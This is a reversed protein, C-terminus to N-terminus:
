QMMLLCGVNRLERTSISSDALRVFNALFARCLSLLRTPPHQHCPRCYDTLKILWCSVSVNTQSLLADQARGRSYLFVSVRLADCCLWLLSGLWRMEIAMVVAIVSSVIPRQHTDKTISGNNSSSSSNSSSIRYRQCPPSKITAVILLIYLLQYFSSVDRSAYRADDCVLLLSGSEIKGNNKLKRGKRKRGQEPIEVPALHTTVCRSLALISLHQCFM